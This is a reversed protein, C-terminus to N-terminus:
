YTTKKKDKLLVEWDDKSIGHVFKNPNFTPKSVIAVIDGTFIDMVCVSGSKDAIAESAVEQVEQDITTRYNSGPTGNIFKLERIRKGYANVEFRQLGPLGIMENNLYKELGNKGTKMGPINLQKLMENNELDKVSIDSVYGIIHSSSGNELYKRAVAVVPKIGQTEHM